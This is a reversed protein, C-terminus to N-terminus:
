TYTRTSKTDLWAIWTKHSKVTAAGWASNIKYSCSATNTEWIFDADQLSWFIVHFYAAARMVNDKHHLQFVASFFPRHPVIAPLSHEFGKEHVSILLSLFFIVSQCRTKHWVCQCIGVCVCMCAKEMREVTVPKISSAFFLVNLEFKFHNLMLSRTCQLFITGFSFFSDLLNLHCFRKCSKGQISMSVDTPYKQTIVFESTDWSGVM